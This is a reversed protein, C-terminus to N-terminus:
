IIKKLMMFVILPHLLAFLLQLASIPMLLKFYTACQGGLNNCNHFVITLVERPVIHFFLLLALRNMRLTTLMMQTHKEKEQEEEHNYVLLTTSRVKVRNSLTNDNVCHHLNPVQNPIIYEDRDRTQEDGLVSTEIPSENASSANAVQSRKLREQRHTLRTVYISISVTLLFAFLSPFSTALINSTRVYLCRHCEACRILSPDIYTIIGTALCTFVKGLGVVKMSLNTTITTRHFIPKWVALLRDVQMLIIDSVMNVRAVFMIILHICITSSLSEQINHYLAITGSFAYLSLGAFYNMQFTHVPRINKRQSLLIKGIITVNALCNIMLLSMFVLSRTKNWNITHHDEPDTLNRRDMNSHSHHLIERSTPKERCGYRGGM